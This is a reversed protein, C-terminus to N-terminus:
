QEAHNIEGVKFNEECNLCEVTSCCEIETHEHGCEPCSWEYGAAILNVTRLETKKEM